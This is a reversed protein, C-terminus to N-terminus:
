IININLNQVKNPYWQTYRETFKKLSSYQLNNNNVQINIDTIEDIDIDIDIDTDIDTQYKEFDSDSSIFKLTNHPKTNKVIFDLIINTKYSLNWLEFPTIIISICGKIFIIIKFEFRKTITKFVVHTHANNIQNKKLLMYNSLVTLVSVPNRTKKIITYSRSIAIIPTIIGLIWIIPKDNFIYLNTLIKDNIVSLILIVIFVSSLLFVFLRSIVIFINNKFLSIYETTIKEASNIRNNFEHELENYYKLRWKERNSFGKSIILQPKNYFLEGYSFIYYFFLLTLIFPMFIFNLISIWKMKQKIKKSYKDKETFIDGNIKYNDFITFFICFYLNWEMLKNLITSKIINHGLIAIFYNNKATIINNIYFIDLKQETNKTLIQIINNWELYELENDTIDLVNKYFDRINKYVYIDDSISIIKM